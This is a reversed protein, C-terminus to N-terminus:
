LSKTQCILQKKARETTRTSRKVQIGWERGVAEELQEYLEEDTREVAAELLASSSAEDTEAAATAEVEEPSLDNAVENGAKNDSMM